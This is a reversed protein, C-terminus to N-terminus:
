IAQEELIEKYTDSNYKQLAHCIGYMISGFGVVALSILAKGYPEASLASLAIGLNTEEAEVPASKCCEYGVPCTPLAKECKTDETKTCVASEVEFNSCSKCPSCPGNSSTGDPSWTGSPCDTPMDIVFMCERRVPANGYGNWYTGWYPFEVVDGAKFDKQFTLLGDAYPIGNCLMGGGSPNAYHAGWWNMKLKFSSQTWGTLSTTPNWYRDAGCGLVIYVTADSLMKFHHKATTGTVYKDRYFRDATILYPNKWASPIEKVTESIQNVQWVDGVALPWQHTDPNDVDSTDYPSALQSVATPVPWTPFAQDADFVVGFFFSHQHTPNKATLYDFSEGAALTKQVTNWGDTCSTMGFALICAPNPLYPYTNMIHVKFSSDTFGRARFDNLHFNWMPVHDSLFVYLTGAVEATFKIRRQTTWLWEYNTSLLYPHKWASPTPDIYYPRKPWVIQKPAFPGHWQIDGGVNSIVSDTPVQGSKVSHWLSFLILVFM